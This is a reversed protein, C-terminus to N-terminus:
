NILANSVDTCYQEISFVELNTLHQESMSSKLYSKIWKLTSFCRECEASSVCIIMVLQLLNVIGPFAAQLPAIELLLDSIEPVNSAKSLIIKALPTEAQLEEIDLENLKTLPQLVELDFFSSSFPKCTQIAIM